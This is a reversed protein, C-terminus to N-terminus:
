SRREVLQLRCAQSGDRGGWDFVLSAEGADHHSDRPCCGPPARPVAFALLTEIPPHEAISHVVLPGRALSDGLHDVRGM